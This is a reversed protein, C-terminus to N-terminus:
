PTEKDRERLLAEIEPNYANEVADDDYLDAVSTEHRLLEFGERDIDLQGAIARMDGIPMVHEENEFFIEPTGGTLRASHFYPKEDQPKIFNLAGQTHAQPAETQIAAQSM